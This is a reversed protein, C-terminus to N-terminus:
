NEKQIEDIVDKEDINHNKKLVDVNGQLIFNDGLNFQRINCNKGISQYYQSILSNLSGISCHEEYVYIKSESITNLMETDLPKIFIANIVGIDLDQTLLEFKEVCPGYCIIYKSAKKSITWKGFEIDKINSLSEVKKFAGGRPYRIACTGGIKFALKLLQQTQIDNKGMMIKINPMHSMFSIDYIGQHTEGDEGVLNARDIGIVVNCNHRIVDHFLQDYGRQLFTSYISIFPKKNALSLAASFTLAHEEAIGVDTVRNPYKQKLDKLESGDIMAPTIVIVDEDTQMIQDLSNAVISSYTHTNLKVLSEGTKVNFKGIGHWQNQRAPEYGKGKITKVHIVCSGKYNKAKTLVKNLENFDHGDIVGFYKLGLVGFFNQTSSIESKIKNKINRISKDIKVGLKNNNKTLKASVKEKLIYYNSSTNIGKLLKDIFGINESISMENDNIILIVKTQLESIHNLAEMAMGNTMSGDGIVCVVHDNTKNMDRAFAFGAAASISTGAHGAEWVDHISEEKKIFGSLGNFQRLTDFQDARSTIIKHVYCQHGVDFILKDKPSDFCYHLMMSLEVIGLNSGLHGGTKSVSNILFQRIDYATKNLQKNNMQKLKEINLNTLKM